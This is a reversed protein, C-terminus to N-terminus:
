CGCVQKKRKKSKRCPLLALSKEPAGLYVNGLHEFAVAGWKRQSSFAAVEIPHHDTLEPCGQRLAQMTLNNDTSAALYNGLLMNPDSDAQLPVISELVM